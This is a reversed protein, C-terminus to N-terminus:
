SGRSLCTIIVYYRIHHHVYKPMDIANADPKKATSKDLYTQPVQRGLGEDAM